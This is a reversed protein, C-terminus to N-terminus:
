QIFLKEQINCKRRFISILLDCPNLKFMPTKKRIMFVWTLWLHSVMWSEAKCCSAMLSLNGDAVVPSYNGFAFVQWFNSLRGSAAFSWFCCSAVFSLSRKLSVARMTWWDIWNISLNIKSKYFVTSMFNWKILSQCTSYLTELTTWFGQKCVFYKLHSVQLLMTYLHLNVLELGCFVKRANPDKLKSTGFETVPEPLLYFFLQHTLSILLEKAWGM